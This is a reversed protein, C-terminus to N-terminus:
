SGWEAGPAPNRRSRRAHAHDHVALRRCRCRQTISRSGTLATARALCKGTETLAPATGLSAFIERAAHLPREPGPRAASHSCARATDWCRM